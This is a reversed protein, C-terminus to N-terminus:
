STVHSTLVIAIVDYAVNLVIIGRYVDRLAGGMPRRACVQIPLSTVVKPACTDVRTVMITTLVDPQAVGQSKTAFAKLATTVAHHVRGM